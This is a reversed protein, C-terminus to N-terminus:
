PPTSHHCWCGWVAAAAAAAAASRPSPQARTAVVAIGLARQEPASRHLWGLLCGGGISSISEYVEWQEHISVRTSDVDTQLNDGLATKCAPAM